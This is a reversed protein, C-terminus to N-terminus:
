FGARKLLLDIEEFRGDPMGAVVCAGDLCYQTIGLPATRNTFRCEAVMEWPEGFRLRARPPSLESFDETLRIPSPESGLHAEVAATCGSVVPSAEDGHASAVLLALGFTVAVRV